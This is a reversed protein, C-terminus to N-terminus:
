NLFVKESSSGKATNINVIYVGSAVDLDITQNGQINSLTKVVKGDISSVIMSEINVNSNLIISQGNSYLDYGLTNLENQGTPNNLTFVPSGESLANVGCNVPTVSLVFAVYTGDITFADGDSDVATSPLTVDGNSGTPAAATFNTNGNANIIDFGGANAEKVIFVRYEDINSEVAAMDFSVNVDTGDLNDAVDSGVVNIVAISPTIIETAATSNYAYDKLTITGLDIQIRAWGYHTAGNLDLRLGVYAETGGAVFNGYYGIPTTGTGTFTNWALTQFYSGSVFAKNANIAEDNQIAYPYFYSSSSQAAVANNDLAAIFGRYVNIAGSSTSFSNALFVFDDTGDNNLDLYLTDSTIDPNVDTYDVQANVATAGAAVAGATMSYAKLRKKLAESLTSNKTM